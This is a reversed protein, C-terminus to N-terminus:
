NRTGRADRRALLNTPADTNAPLFEYTHFNGDEIFIRGCQPCQCMQRFFPVTDHMAYQSAVDPSENHQRVANEITNCYDDVCQSPLIDAFQPSPNGADKIFEGCPCEIRM